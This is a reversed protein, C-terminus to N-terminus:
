TTLVGGLVCFSEPHRVGIDTWRSAVIRVVRNVDLSFPNVVIDTPGFNAVILQSWDGLFIASCITTATGTTLNTAIQESVEARYGNVPTSGASYDWVPTNTSAFRPTVKAAGRHGARMLYAMSSVDANDNAILSEMSVLAPYLTANNIALGNASYAITNIGTTGAIGTPQGSGSGHLAALDIALAIQQLVDDRLLADVSPNSEMLLQKGYQVVACLALPTLTFQTFNVGSLTGAVTEGVWNATSAGNQRPITVPNSLNLVRAGLQLVKARNRLLEVFESGLNPTSVLMGGLTGTAAVANRQALAEDPMWFGEPKRGYKISCEDSMEREFGDLKGSIQANIARSISYRGWEKPKVELVPAPQVPATPLANLAKARFQDVTEGAALSADMLERINPVKGDLNRAIAQMEKIQTATIGSETIVEAMFKTEKPTELNDSRGVGVSADAPVSVISVEYPQWAFRVFEVGDRTESVLEKVRRYGVSVLRRIGDKVDRWIEDGLQSKSFRVVARAKKDADVRASEVVGIQREPDHNLLLPHADNLRSLDVDAPDHSLIEQYGGREVPLESSFSLECTRQKADLGEPAFSAERTFSVDLGAREVKTEDSM